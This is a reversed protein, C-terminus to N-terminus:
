PGFRFTGTLRIQHAPGTGSYRVQFCRFGARMRQVPSPCGSKFHDSFRILGASRIRFATDLFTAFGTRDASGFGFIGSFRVQGPFRNSRLVLDSRSVADPFDSHSLAPSCVRAPQISIALEPFVPDLWCSQSRFVPASHIPSPHSYCSKFNGSFRILGVSRFGFVSGFPM